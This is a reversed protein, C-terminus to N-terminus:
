DNAKAKILKYESKIFAYGGQYKMDMRPMGAKVLDDCTVIMMKDNTMAAHCEMVKGVVPKLGFINKLLKMKMIKVGSNKKQNQSHTVV